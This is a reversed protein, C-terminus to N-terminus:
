NPISFCVEVVQSSNNEISTQIQNELKKKFIKRLFSLSKKSLTNYKKSDSKRKKRGRRKYKECEDTDDFHQNIHQSGEDSRISCSSQFNNQEISSTRCHTFVCECSICRRNPIRMRENISVGNIVSHYSSYRRINIESSCKMSNRACTNQLQLNCELSTSIRSEHIRIREQSSSINQIETVTHNEFISFQLENTPNSIDNESKSFLSSKDKENVKISEEFM